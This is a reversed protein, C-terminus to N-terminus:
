PAARLLGASGPAGGRTQVVPMQCGLIMRSCHSASECDPQQQRRHAKGERPRRDAGPATRVPRQTDGLTVTAVRTRAACAAHGAAGVGTVALSGARADTVVASEWARLNPRHRLRAALLSCRAGQGARTVECGDLTDGGRNEIAAPRIEAGVRGDNQWSRGEDAAFPLGGRVRGSGVGGRGGRRPKRGGARASRREDSCGM